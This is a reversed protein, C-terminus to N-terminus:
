FIMNVYCFKMNLKIRRTIIRKLFTLIRIKYSGAIFYVRKLIMIYILLCIKLM